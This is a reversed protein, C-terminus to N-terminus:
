RLKGFVDALRQGTPVATGQMIGSTQEFKELIRMGDSTIEFERLSKDHDSGREKLVVIARKIASDMEVYRLLIVSDMVASVGYTTLKPFGFLEAIENTMVSTIGRSKLFSVLAYIYDKFRGKSPIATELDVISDIMVRRADTEEVIQKIRIAYEETNLEVPSVHLVRCLKQEELAQLDWGFGQAIRYLQEPNEQFTVILGPEGQEAGTVIFHLGLLTKGTGAGGAVLAASGKPIGGHMMEDLGEIGTRAPKWDTHARPVTATPITRPFVTIGDSAIDFAHLGAFYAGGRLKLVRLFRASGMGAAETRLEIIGDAIAFVPDEELERSTYEGILFTTCGVEGLKIALNYTFARQEARDKMSECAAKFSDIVLLKIDGAGKIRAILAEFTAAAGQGLISEAVEGYVISRDLKSKDFYAFQEQYRILKELPESLTSLYLVRHDPRANQFAIQQCLISKGSGPAGTVVNMSYAPLGGSLIEDLNPVGTELRVLAATEQLSAPLGPAELTKEIVSQLQDMEFPKALYESAGGRLAEVATGLSAYGTIMVVQTDPHREKLWRLVELGSVDPMRIDVLALDFIAEELKARAEQGSAATTVRHGQKQLFASLIALLDEDDEVVLVSRSLPRLQTM